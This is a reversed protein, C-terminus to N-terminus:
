PRAGERDHTREYPQIGARSEDKEHPDKAHQDCRVPPPFMRWTQDGDFTGWRAHGPICESFDQGCPFLDDLLCGCGDCATGCLGDFGDKRLREEVIQKVTMREDKRM